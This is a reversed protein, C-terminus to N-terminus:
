IFAEGNETVDDFWQISICDSVDTFGTKMDAQRDRDTQTHKGTQRHTNGQRDAQRDTHTVAEALAEEHDFSSGKEQLLAGICLSGLCGCVVFECTVVFVRPVCQARQETFQSLAM